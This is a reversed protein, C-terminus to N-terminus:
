KLVKIKKNLYNRYDVIHEEENYLVYTVFGNIKNFDSLREARIKNKYIHNELGLFKYHLMKLSSDNSLVIQGTPNASHCGVSFNISSIKNCDFMMMKDLVHTRVGYKVLELINDDPSLNLTEDAVMHYGEPKFITVGKAFSDILFQEINEHYLFEDSDGVIVYDAFGISSKWVHNKLKLM